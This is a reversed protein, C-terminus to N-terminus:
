AGKSNVVVHGGPQLLDSRMKELRNRVSGEILKDGIRASFGGVVSASVKETLVLQKAGLSKALRETIGKREAAKLRVATTITGSMISRGEDLLATFASAIEAFLWTGRKQVLLKVMNRLLPHVDKLLTDLGEFKATLPVQPANMFTQVDSDSLIANAQEFGSEWEPLDGGEEALQLVAKAYRTALLKNSM